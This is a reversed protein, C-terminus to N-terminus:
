QGRFWGLSNIKAIPNDSQSGLKAEQILSMWADEICSKEMRSLKWSLPLCREHPNTRRFQFDAVRFDIHELRLAQKMMALGFHNRELQSSSRVNMIAEAPGAFAFLWGGQGFKDDAEDDPFPMIRVVLVRDFSPCRGAKRDAVLHDLWDLASVVGENDIYGGDAVHYPDAVKQAPRCIPSVYPFTASLRAATVPPIDLPAYREDLEIADNDDSRRGLFGPSKPLRLNDIMFRKGNEVATANFIVIPFNGVRARQGWDSMADDPHLLNEQWSKEIAWGRDSFTPVLFPALSKVSDWGAWGWATAELSSGMARERIMRLDETTADPLGHGSKSWADLYYLAGVSGGSVASVIGVSQTFDNGYLEHLGTLVRATWAAAQIGGGAATVIVLTKPSQDAETAVILPAYYSDRAAIQAAPAEYAIRESPDILRYFCDTGSVTWNFMSMLLVSVILPVRFYDMLFAAGTTLLCVLLCMTLLGFLASFYQGERPVGMALLSVAYGTLLITTYVFLQAHGPRLLWGDEPDLHSFGPGLHHLLRALAQGRRDLWAIRWRDKVLKLRDLPFLGDDVVIRNLFLQHLVTTVLM